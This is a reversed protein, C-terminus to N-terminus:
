PHNHKNFLGNIKGKEKKQKYRKLSIGQLGIWNPMQVLFLNFIQFVIEM